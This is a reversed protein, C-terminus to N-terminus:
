RVPFTRSGTPSAGGPIPTLKGVPKRQGDAAPAGPAHTAGGTLAAALGSRPGSYVSGNSLPVTVVPDGLNSLYEKAADEGLHQAIFAYDNATDNNVPKQPASYVTKYQGTQPDFQVLSGNVERPEMQHMQVRRRAAQEQMRNQLMMTAYPDGNSASLALGVEGLTQLIKQGAGGSQFFTPKRFHPDTTGAFGAALDPAPMGVPRAISAPVGPMGIAGPMMDGGSAGPMSMGPDIPGSLDPRAFMGQQRKRLLSTSAPFPSYPMMASGPPAGANGDPAAGDATNSGNSGYLYAGNADDVKLPNRLYRTSSGMM